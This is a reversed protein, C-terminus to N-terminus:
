SHVQSLNDNHIISPPFFTKLFTKPLLIDM